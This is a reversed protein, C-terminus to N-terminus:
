KIFVQMDDKGTPLSIHIFNQKRYYILQHWKLSREGSISKFVFEIDHDPSIKGNLIKLNKNITFDAAQGKMHQSYPSGGVLQNLDESRYGSLITVPEKIADRIPQLILEALDRLNCVIDMNETMSIANWLMQYNKEAIKPYDRSVCMEKLTFNKSLNM